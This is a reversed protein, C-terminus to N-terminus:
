IHSLIPEPVEAGTTDWSPIVIMTYDALTKVPKVTLNVGGTAGLPVSSFSVVDCQYWEELEPRRLAFLEVACGLEFLAINDHVLIAVRHM